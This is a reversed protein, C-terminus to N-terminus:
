EEIQSDILDIIDRLTKTTLNSIGNCNKEDDSVRGNCDFDHAIDVTANKSKKFQLFSGSSGLEAFITKSNTAVNEDSSEVSKPLHEVTYSKEFGDVVDYQLFGLFPINPFWKEKHTVCTGTKRVDDAVRRAKDNYRLDEETEVYVGGNIAEIAFGLLKDVVESNELESLPGTSNKSRNVNGSDLDCDIYQSGNPDCFYLSLSREKDMDIFGVELTNNNKSEYSRWIVYGNDLRVNEGNEIVDTLVIEIPTKPKQPKTSKQLRYEDIGGGLSLALCTAAAWNYLRGERLGTWFSRAYDRLKRRM